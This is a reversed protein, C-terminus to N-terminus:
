DESRENLIVSGRIIYEIDSEQLTHIGGSLSGDVSLKCSDIEVM